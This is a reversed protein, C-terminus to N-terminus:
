SYLRAVARAREAVLRCLSEPELVQVLPGYSLATAVAYEMDYSPFTVVLGGDPQEEPQEM